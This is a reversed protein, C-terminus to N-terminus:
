RGGSTGSSVSRGGYVNGRDREFERVPISFRRRSWTRGHDDSYKFVYHGLSDVRKYVGGDERRVEPVRDTNHNYFCFIRGGPIKLPVAYSAEPGDAPEVDARGTWTRGQDASRMSVVHQGPEGELGHGTTMVCLWAGDDTRVVYPQDAYGESPIIQGNSIHRPDPIPNV